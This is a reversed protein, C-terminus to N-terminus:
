RKKNKLTQKKGGKKYITFDKASVKLTVSIGIIPWVWIKFQHQKASLKFALPYTCSLKEKHMNIYTHTCEFKNYNEWM